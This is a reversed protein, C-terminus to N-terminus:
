KLAAIYDEKTPEGDRGDARTVTVGRREAEAQLEAKTSTDVNFALPTESGGSDVTYTEGPRKPKYM